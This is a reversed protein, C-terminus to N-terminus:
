KYEHGIVARLGRGLALGLEATAGIRARVLNQVRCQVQEGLLAKVAGRDILDGGLSGYKFRQMEATSQTEPDAEFVQEGPKFFKWWVLVGGAICLLLIVILAILLIVFLASLAVHNGIFEPLKHLIDNM